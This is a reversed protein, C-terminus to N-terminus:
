YSTAQREEVLKRAYDKWHISDPIV